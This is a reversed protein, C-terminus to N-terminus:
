KQLINPFTELASRCTEKEGDRSARDDFIKMGEKLIKMSQKDDMERMCQGAQVILGESYGRFGCTFQARSLTGHMSVLNECYESQEKKTSETKAQIGFSCLGIMLGLLYAKM